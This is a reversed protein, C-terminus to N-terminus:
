VDCVVSWAVCGFWVVCLDNCVVCLVGCLAFRADDRSMMSLVVFSVDGCVVCCVIYM